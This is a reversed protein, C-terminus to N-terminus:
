FRKNRVPVGRDVDDEIEEREGGLDELEDRTEEMQGELDEILSNISEDRSMYEDSGAVISLQALGYSRWYEFSDPVYARIADALREKLEFLSEQIDRLEEIGDSMSELEHALQAARDDSEGEAVADLKNLTERFPDM